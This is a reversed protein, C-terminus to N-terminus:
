VILNKINKQLIVALLETCYESTKKKDKFANQIIVILCITNIDPYIKIISASMKNM